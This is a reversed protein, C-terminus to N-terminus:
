AYIGTIVTVLTVTINYHSNKFLVYVSLVQHHLLITAQSAKNTHTKQRVADSANWGAQSTINMADPGANECTTM